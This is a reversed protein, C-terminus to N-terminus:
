GIQADLENSLDSKVKSPNHLDPNDNDRKKVDIMYYSVIRKHPNTWNKFEGIM